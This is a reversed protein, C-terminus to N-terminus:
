FPIKEINKISLQHNYPKVKGLFTWRLKQSMKQSFINNPPRPLPVWLWFDRKQCFYFHVGAITNTFLNKQDFFLLPGKHCSKAPTCFRSGNQGIIAMNHGNKWKQWKWFHFNSTKWLEVHNKWIPGSSGWSSFKSKKRGFEFSYQSQLMHHFNQGEIM